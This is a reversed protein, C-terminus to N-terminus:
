LHFCKMMIEMKSVLDVKRLDINVNCAHLLSWGKLNIVCVPEFVLVIDVDRQEHMDLKHM